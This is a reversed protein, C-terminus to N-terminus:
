RSTMQLPRAAWSPVDKIQEADRSWMEKFFVNKMSRNHPCYHVHFQDLIKSRQITSIKQFICFGVVSFGFMKGRPVLAVLFM